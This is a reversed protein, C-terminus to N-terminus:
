FNVDFKRKETVGASTIEFWIEWHGSMSFKVGQVLYDGNGVENVVPQTPLGHNHAPMGGDVRIEAGEVPTGDWHEVRLRWSHIRNMPLPETLSRYSVVFHEQGDKALGDVPWLVVSVAILVLLSRVYGPCGGFVVNM